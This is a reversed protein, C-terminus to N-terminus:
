KKYSFILFDKLKENLIKNINKFYNGMVKNNIHKLEMKSRKIVHSFYQLKLAIKMSIYYNYLLYDKEM